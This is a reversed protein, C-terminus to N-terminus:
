RSIQKAATGTGVGLYTFGMEILLSRNLANKADIVVPRKMLSRIRQFDLERFEPWETLLILVDCGEVAKYVNASFEFEGHSEVEDPAAKPDYAKVKVGKSALSQIIEIAASRRLTSTGPKYTLGLVGVILGELSGSVQKLKREVVENQQKNVDLVAETIRMRYGEREGLRKLIHLDRALTGGSFGLGPLPPRSWIREDQYLFLQIAEAIKLADVGIMDSLNAIENMFSIPLALFANVVHKAMEATAVSMRIIPVGLAHYLKEVMAGVHDSDAGVIVAKPKLFREIAQGLRLFEPVYSIDFDLSPNTQKIISKIRECTGIPVQSCVIVTSGDKLYKGLDGSIEFIESLDVEDKADVPTDLSLLVYEADNLASSLETTYSLRGEELNKVMLEALSPEFLPPIGENLDRVKRPDKDVGVVRYGLSALCTSVVSGLHWISVVCVKLASNTM